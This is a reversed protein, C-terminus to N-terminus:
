FEFDGEEERSLTPKAALLRNVLKVDKLQMDPNEIVQNLVATYNEAMEEITSRKFLDTSYEFFLYLRDGIMDAALHLDFKASRNEFPFPSMRSSEAKLFDKTTESKEFNQFVFLVDFLPNRSPDRQLGLRDVLDEFQFDQNDFVKIATEKVQELFQRFPKEGNPYNRLALANVFFGFVNTLEVHSRGVIGGGVVIDEQGTYKYLLVYFMALLNMYFTVDMEDAMEKFKLTQEEELGFEWHDGAFSMTRSRPYDTPLNLRPIEKLDAYMDLWFKEQTKIGGSKFLHNQWQSFDKYQIKLPPLEEGMGLKTFEGTLFEMSTGDAIIHHVDFLLLYEQKSLHAIGVRMLPAQELDFPRIFERIKDQIVNMTIKKEKM